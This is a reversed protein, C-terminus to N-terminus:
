KVIKSKRTHVVIGYMNICFNSTCLIKSLLALINAWTRAKDDFRNYVYSANGLLIKKADSSTPYSPRTEIDKVIIITKM